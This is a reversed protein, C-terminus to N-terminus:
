WAGMDSLSKVSELELESEETSRRLQEAHLRDAEAAAAISRTAANDLKEAEMKKLIENIRVAHSKRIHEKFKSTDEETWHSVAQKVIGQWAFHFDVYLYMAAHLLDCMNESAHLTTYGDPHVRKGTVNFIKQTTRSVLTRAEEPFLELNEMSWRATDSMAQLSALRAGVLEESLSAM